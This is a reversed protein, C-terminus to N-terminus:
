DPRSAPPKVSPLVTVSVHKAFWNGCTVPVMENPPEVAMPRRSGFYQLLAACGSHFLTPECTFICTTYGSGYSKMTLAVYLFMGPIGSVPVTVYALAATAGIRPRFREAHESGVPAHVDVVLTFTTCGPVRYSWRSFWTSRRPVRGMRTPRARRCPM